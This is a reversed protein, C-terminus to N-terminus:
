AWVTISHSSVFCLSTLLVHPLKLHWVGSAQCLLQNLMCKVQHQQHFSDRKRLARCNTEAKWGTGNWTNAFKQWLYSRWLSGVLFIILFVVKNWTLDESWWGDGWSWWSADALLALLSPLHPLCSFCDWAWCEWTLTDWVGQLIGEVLGM